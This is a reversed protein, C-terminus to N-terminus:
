QKSPDKLIKLMKNINEKVHETPCGAMAKEIETALSDRDAQVFWSINDSLSGVLRDSLTKLDDENYVEMNVQENLLRDIFNTYNRKVTEMGLRLSRTEEDDSDMIVRALELMRDHVLLGFLNIDALEAKYPRAGNIEVSYIKYLGSQFGTFNQILYARMRLPFITDYIFSLNDESVFRKFLEGSKKSSKKPLTLPYNAKLSSLTINANVYDDNTWIKSPDPM